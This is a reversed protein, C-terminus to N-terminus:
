RAQGRGSALSRVAGLAEIYPLEVGSEAARLLMAGRQMDGMGVFPAPFCLREGFVELLLDVYKTTAISGLLVVRAREPLRAALAECDAALPIRYRPDALDIPVAAFEDLAGAGIPADPAVLGSATAIVLAGPTGAPAHAFRRAYTLKGRFYLGSVFSFVEGLTAHGARLRVALDFEAEPRRLTAARRGAAHAPSLLFIRPLAM